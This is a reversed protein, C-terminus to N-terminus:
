FLCILVYISGVLLGHFFYLLKLEMFVDAATSNDHTAAPRHAKLAAHKKDPLVIVHVELRANSIFLYLLIDLPVYQNARIRQSSATAEWRAICRMLSDV